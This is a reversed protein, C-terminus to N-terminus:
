HSRIHPCCSGEDGNACRDSSCCGHAITSSDASECSGGHSCELRLGRYSGLAWSFDVDPLRDLSLRQM